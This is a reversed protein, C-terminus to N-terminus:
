NMENPPNKKNPPLLPSEEPIRHLTKSYNSWRVKVGSSLPAVFDSLCLYPDDKADKEAQQRLGYLRGLMSDADRPWDDDEYILIDDGVSNAPYFGVVGHASLLKQEVIRKLLAQADNFLRKAEEGARKL